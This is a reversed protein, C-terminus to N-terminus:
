GDLRALYRAFNNGAINEILPQPFGRKKMCDFLGYLEGAHRLGEPYSEIGDFDSGLGVYAEGGLDCMRAMHDVVDDLTAHGSETLFVPYFNVGVFGGARFLARLQEDTLNRPHPCLAKACSHSAMPPTDSEMLEWCGRENLHSMDLAIKNKRLAEAMQRGLSTLGEDSGSIAPHALGNENNWILAAIRVGLGAYREVAELSGGFIEGGEITLLANAAGPVAESIRRIQRFGQSKLAEFADLEREALDSDAGKLVNIGAFMALAQVRIDAPHATLRELTVDLADGAKERTALAYLTDAHTDCILM